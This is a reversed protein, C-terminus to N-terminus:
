AAQGLIDLGQKYGFLHPPPPPPSPTGYPSLGYHLSPDDVLRKRQEPHDALYAFMCDLSATVTDLGALFFLYGIDLVDDPTLQEGDVEASLFQSIFDDRPEALRQQVVEDLVAYIRQGTEAVARSRDEPTAADPRRRGVTGVGGCGRGAVALPHAAFDGRPASTWANLSDTFYVLM